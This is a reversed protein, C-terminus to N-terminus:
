DDRIPVDLLSDLSANRKNVHTLKFIFVFQVRGPKAKQRSNSRAYHQFPIQEASKITESGIM